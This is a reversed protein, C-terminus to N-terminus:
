EQFPINLHTISDTEAAEPRHFQAILASVLAVAMLAVGIITMPIGAIVPWGTSFVDITLKTGEAPYAVNLGVSGHGWEFTLWLGGVLFVLAAILWRDTRM